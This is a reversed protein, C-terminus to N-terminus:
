SSRIECESTEDRQCFSLGQNKPKGANQALVAIRGDTQCRAISIRRPAFRPKLGLPIAVAPRWSTILHAYKVPGRHGRNSANNKEESSLSADREDEANSFAKSFPAPQLSSAANSDAPPFLSFLSFLSSRSFTALPLNSSFCAGSCSGFILGACTPNRATALAQGEM